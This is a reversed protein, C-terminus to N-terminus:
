LSPLLSLGASGAPSGGSRQCSPPVVRATALTEEGWLQLGEARASVMGRGWAWCVAQRQSRGRERGRAWTELPCLRAPCHLRPHACRQRPLPLSATNEGPSFGCPAAGLTQCLAQHHQAPGQQGQSATDMHGSPAPWESAWLRPPPQAQNGASAPVARFILQVSVALLCICADETACSFVKRLRLDQLVSHLETLVSWLTGPM